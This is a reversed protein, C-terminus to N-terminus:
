DPKHENEDRSKKGLLDIEGTTVHARLRYDGEASKRNVSPFFGGSDSNYVPAKVEGIAVSASVTRYDWQHLSSVTIQGAGIEIDKDGKIEEVKVEGAFMRIRLNTKWPVEIRIHLNNNGHHAHTGEIALTGGDAAPSFRLLVREVSQENGTCSVHVAEQDTGVVELGAPQSEINLVQQSHLPAALTQSCSAKTEALGALNFTFCAAGVIACVYRM